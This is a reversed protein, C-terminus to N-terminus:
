RSAVQSVTRHREGKRLRLAPETATLFLQYGKGRALFKVEGATQGQNPEFSLPLKGYDELVKIRAEADAKEPRAGDLFHGEVDSAASEARHIKESSPEAWGGVAVSATTSFTMGLILIIILLGRTQNSLRKMIEEKLDITITLNTSIPM